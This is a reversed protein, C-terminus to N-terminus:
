RAGPSLEQVEPRGRYGIVMAWSGAILLVVGAVLAVIGVVQVARQSRGVSYSGGTAGAGRWDCSVTTPGGRGDFSAAFTGVSTSTRVAASSADLDETTGDPHEVACDLQGIRDETLQGLLPDPTLTIAYEREAADFTVPNGVRARGEATAVQVAQEGSVLVAGTCLAILGVVVGAIGLRLPRQRRVTVIRRSPVPAAPSGPAPETM